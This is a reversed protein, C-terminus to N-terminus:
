PGVILVALLAVVLAILLGAVALTVWRLLAAVRGLLTVLRRLALVVLLLLWWVLVVTALLGGGLVGRLLSSSIILVITWWCSRITETWGLMTAKLVTLCSSLETLVISAIWLTLWSVLLHKWFERGGSEVRYSSPSVRSSTTALGLVGALVWLLRLVTLGRRRLLDVIGVALRVLEGWLGAILVCGVVIRVGRRHGLPLAAQEARDTAPYSSVIQPLILTM